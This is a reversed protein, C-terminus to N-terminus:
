LVALVAIALLMPRLIPPTRMEPSRLRRRRGPKRGRAPRPHLHQGSERPERGAALRRARPRHRPRDVPRPRPRGLQVGALQVFPPEGLRARAVPTRAATRPPERP